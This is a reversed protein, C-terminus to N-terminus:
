SPADVARRGPPGRGQYTERRAQARHGDVDQRRHWWAAIGAGARAPLWGLVQLLPAATGLGSGADVRVDPRQGLTQQASATVAQIAPPVRGPGSAAATESSAAVATTAFLLALLVPLSAWRRWWVPPPAGQASM